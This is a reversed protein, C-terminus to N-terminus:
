LTQPPPRIFASQIRLQSGLQPEAAAISDCCFALVPLFSVAVPLPVSHAAVCISCHTAASSSGDDSAMGDHSHVVQVMAFVALVLALLLVSWKRFRERDYQSNPKMGSTLLIIECFYAMFRGFSSSLDLHGRINLTVHGFFECGPIIGPSAVRTTRSTTSFGSWTRHFQM